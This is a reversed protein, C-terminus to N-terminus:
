PSPTPSGDDDLPVPTATGSLHLVPLEVVPPSPPAQYNLQLAIGKLALPTASNADATAGAAAPVEDEASFQITNVGDKLLSVPVYFSGDRWGVYTTTSTADTFFGSDTLGPVAPTLTGARQENIWVVLHQSL